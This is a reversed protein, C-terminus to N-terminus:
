RPTRVAALVRRLAEGLDHALQGSSAGAAAPAAAILYTGAPLPLDPDRVLARLQRRLRNRVVAGGVKRGVAFAVRPPEAADGPLYAVTLPGSRGRRASRLALFLERREVRWILRVAPGPGQAPPGEPGGSGGPHVDAQPLRAEQGAQPQQTSVYAESM